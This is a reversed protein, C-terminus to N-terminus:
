KAGNKLKGRAQIEEKLNLLEDFNVKKSYQDVLKMTYQALLVALQKKDLKTYEATM